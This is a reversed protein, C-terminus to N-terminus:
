RGMKEPLKNRHRRKVDAFQNQHRLHCYLRESKQQLEDTATGSPRPLPLSQVQRNSEPEKPRAGRLGDEAGNCDYLMVSLVPNDNEDEDEDDDRTM